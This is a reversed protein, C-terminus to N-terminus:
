TTLLAVCCYDGSNLPYSTCGTAPLVPFSSILLGVPLKWTMKNLIEHKSGSDIFVICFLTFIAVM